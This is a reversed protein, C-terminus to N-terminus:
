RVAPLRFISPSLPELSRSIKFNKSSGLQGVNQAQIPHRPPDEDRRCSGGRVDRCLAGWTQDPPRNKFPPAAPPPPRPDHTLGSSLRLPWPVVRTAGKPFIHFASGGVTPAVKPGTAGVSQLTAVVARGAPPAGGTAYDTFSLRPPCTFLTGEREVATAAGPFMPVIPRADPPLDRGGTGWVGKWESFCPFGLACVCSSLFLSLRFPQAPVAM